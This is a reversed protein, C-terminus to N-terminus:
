TEVAYKRAALEYLPKWVFINLAVVTIILATLAFFLDNASGVSYAAEDIARGIGYQVAFVNSGYAFYETVILANWGGGIATISGTVLSPLIAPLLVRKWYLIGRVGFSRSVDRVEDSVSSFAGLANFFIYWQMGTLLLIISAFEISGTVMIIFVVLIPFLGTAPVSATIEAVPLLFRRAKKNKSLYYAFPVTWAFSLVFAAFIRLLSAAVHIPLAYVNPSVPSAFANAALFAYLLFFWGGGLLLLAFVLLQRGFWSAVGGLPTLVFASLPRAVFRTAFYSTERALKSIGRTTQKAYPVWRWMYRGRASNMANFANSYAHYVRSSLVPATSGDYRFSAAWVQLPRWVLFEIAIILSTLVALGAFTLDLRGAAAADVLFSGIGELRYTRGGMSILECAILFYWANTWSMIANYVLKPISAPLYLSRFRLWGTVGYSRSAVLLESPLTIISEYVAFTMNWATCSFVLLVCMLELGLHSGNFLMLLFLGGTPFFGFLPVAEQVDLMPLLISRWKTAAAMTGFVVAFVVGLVVAAVVRSLSALVLFPLQSAEPQAFVSPLKSQFLFVVLFLVFAVGAALAFHRPKLSFRSGAINGVGNKEGRKSEGSKFEGRKRPFM